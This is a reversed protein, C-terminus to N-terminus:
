KLALPKGHCTVHSATKTLSCNDILYVRLLYQLGSKDLITKQSGGAPTLYDSAFRVSPAVTEGSHTLSSNINMFYLSM